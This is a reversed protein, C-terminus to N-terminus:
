DMHVNTISYILNNQNCFFLTVLYFAFHIDNSNMYIEYNDRTCSETSQQCYGSCLVAEM